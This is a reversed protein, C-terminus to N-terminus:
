NDLRLELGSLSRSWEGMEMEGGGEVQLKLCRTKKRTGLEQKQGDERAGDGREETIEAVRKDQEKRRDRKGWMM